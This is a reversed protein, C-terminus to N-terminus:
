REAAVGGGRCEAARHVLVALGVLGGRLHKRKAAAIRFQGTVDALFHSAEATAENRGISRARATSRAPAPDRFPLVVVDVLEVVVADVLEVVALPVPPAASFPLM